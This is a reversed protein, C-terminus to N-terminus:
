SLGALFGEVESLFLEPALLHEFHQLKPMEAIRINPLVEALADSVIRFGAPSAGGLIMLVPIDIAKFRSAVFEYSAMAELEPPLTPALSIMTAWAHSLRLREINEPSECPGTALFAMIADEARGKDIVEQLGRAAARVQPDPPPPEYLMLSRVFNTKLAAGLACLAGFSHGLVHVPEGISDVVAAVDEFERELSCEVLAGSGERGRRNMAHVTFRKELAPQVLSWITRDSVSGHVLLLPPGQGGRWCALKTGDRAIVTKM